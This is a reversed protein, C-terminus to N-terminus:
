ESEGGLIKETVKVIQPVQKEVERMGILFTQFVVETLDDPEDKLKVM